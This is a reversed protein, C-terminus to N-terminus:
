RRIPGGNKDLCEQMRRRMGPILKAGSPYTRGIKHAKASSAKISDPRKEEKRLKKEMWPWVNEQPNLDPSSAPWKPFSRLGFERMVAKVEDTHMCTEGDLLITCRARDPFIRRLFPAIEKRLMKM